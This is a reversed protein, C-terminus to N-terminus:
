CAGLGCRANSAHHAVEERASESDSDEGEGASSALSMQPVVPVPAEDVDAVVADEGSDDAVTM